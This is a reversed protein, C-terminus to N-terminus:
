NNELNGELIKIDHLLESGSETSPNQFCDKQIPREYLILETRLQKGKRDFDVPIRSGPPLNQVIRGLQVPDNMDVTNICLLRDGEQLGAHDAPSDPIVRVVVLDSAGTILNTLQRVSIGMCGRVVRFFQEFGAVQILFG